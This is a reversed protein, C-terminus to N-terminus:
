KRDFRCFLFNQVTNFPTVHDETICKVKQFNESFLGEIGPENYQQIELGSCKKPGEDSFTGIILHGTVAKAALAIYKDKQEAGTLFHFAARDHWAAYTETTIFETIDSIVWKVHDAKDGLRVKARDIAKKSIDLVTVNTYGENLLFDILNSDGGGIDIIAADKPLNLDAIFELSTKPVAQTWSVEGPQKTSYVNEWHDKTSTDPIM